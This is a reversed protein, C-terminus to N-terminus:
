GVQHCIEAEEVCAVYGVKRSFRNRFEEALNRSDLRQKSKPERLRNHRHRGHSLGAPQCRVFNRM